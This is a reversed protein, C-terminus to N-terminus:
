RKWYAEYKDGASHDDNQVVYKMSIKEFEFAITEKISHTINDDINYKVISANTLKYELYVMTAEGSNKIVSIIIEPLKKGNVAASFLGPSSKDISKEIIIPSVESTPAFRAIKTTKRTAEVDLYIHNFVIQDRFNGFRAEGEIGDINIFGNQANMITLGFFSLTILTFLNKM